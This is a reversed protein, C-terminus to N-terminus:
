SGVKAPEVPKAPGVPGGRAGFGQAWVAPGVRPGAPGPVRHVMAAMHLMSLLSRINKNSIFRTTSHRHREQRIILTQGDQSVFTRRCHACPSDFVM